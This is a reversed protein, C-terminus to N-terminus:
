TLLLACLDPLFCRVLLCGYMRVSSTLLLAYPGPLFCHVLLCGCHSYATSSVTSRVSGLVAPLLGLFVEVDGAVDCSPLTPWVVASTAFVVTHVHCCCRYQHFLLPAFLWCFLLLGAPTM